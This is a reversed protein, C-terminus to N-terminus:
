AQNKSLTESTQSLKQILNSLTDIIKARRDMMSQLRLSDLETMESLSDLKGKESELYADLEEISGMHNLGGTQRAANFADAKAQEAAEAALEAPTKEKTLVGKDELFDLYSGDVGDPDQYYGGDADAVQGIAGLEDCYSQQTDIYSQVTAATLPDSAGDDTSNTWDPVNGNSPYPRVGDALSTPYSNGSLAAPLATQVFNKAMDKSWSGNGLGYTAFMKWVKDGTPLKPAGTFDVTYYINDESVEGEHSTGFRVKGEQSWEASGAGLTPGDVNYTDSVGSYFGDKDLMPEDFSVSNDEEASKDDGRTQSQERANRKANNFGGGEAFDVCGNLYEQLKAFAGDVASKLEGNVQWQQFKKADSLLLQNPQALKEQLQQLIKERQAELGETSANVLPDNFAAIMVDLVELQVVLDQMAERNAESVEPALTGEAAIGTVGGPAASGGLDKLFALVKNNNNAVAALTDAESLKVVQKLFTRFDMGDPYGGHAFVDKLMQAQTADLGYALAAAIDADTTATASTEAAATKDKKFYDPLPPRPPLTPAPGKWTGNDQLEGDGWAVSRWAKYDDYTWSGHIEGAGVLQQYEQKMQTELRAKSERITALKEREAKKQNNRKSIEAMQDRLMDDEMRTSEMMVLIILTEIDGNALLAAMGGPVGAALVEPKFPPVFVPQEPTQWDQSPADTAQRQEGSVGSAAANPLQRWKELLAASVKVKGRSIDHLIAAASQHLNLAVKELEVVTPSPIEPLDDSTQTLADSPKKSKDLGTTMWAKYLAAVKPGVETLKQQFSPAVFRFAMAAHDKVEQRKAASAELLRSVSKVMELRRAQDPSLPTELRTDVLEAAVALTLAQAPLHSLPVAPWEEASAFPVALQQLDPVDNPDITQALKDFLAIADSTNPVQSPAVQLLGADLLAIRELAVEPVVTVQDTSFLATAGSKQATADVGAGDKAGVDKADKGGKTAQDARPGPTGRRDARDTQENKAQQLQDQLAGPNEAGRPGTPVITAM